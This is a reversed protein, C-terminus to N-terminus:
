KITKHRQLIMNEVGRFTIKTEITKAKALSNLALFEKALPICHKLVPPQFLSLVLCDVMLQGLLSFHKPAQNVPLENNMTKSVAYFTFPM